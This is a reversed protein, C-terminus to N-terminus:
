RKEMRIESTESSKKKEENSNINLKQRAHKAPAANGLANNKQLNLLHKQFSRM